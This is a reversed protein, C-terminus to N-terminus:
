WSPATGPTESEDPDLQRLDVADVRLDANGLHHFRFEFRAEEGGELSLASPVEFDVSGVEGSLEGATFDRWGQQHRNLAIAEVALVPHGAFRPLGSRCRFSLRYRGGRLRGYPGFLVAGARERRRVDSAAAARVRNPRSSCTSSRRQIPGSAHPNSM